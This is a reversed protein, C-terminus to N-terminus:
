QNVVHKTVLRLRRARGDLYGCIWAWVEIGLYPCVELSKGLRGATYGNQWPTTNMM